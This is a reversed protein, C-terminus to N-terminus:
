QISIGSLVLISPLSVWVFMSAVVKSACNLDFHSLLGLCQSMPYAGAQSGEDRGSSAEDREGHPNPTGYPVFRSRGALFLTSVYSPSPYLCYLAAYWLAFGALVFSGLLVMRGTSRVQIRRITAPKRM